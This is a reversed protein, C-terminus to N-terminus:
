KDELIKEVEAIKGRALEPSIFVDGCTCCQPLAVDFRSGLYAMHNKYNGLPENCRGCMVKKELPQVPTGPIYQTNADVEM